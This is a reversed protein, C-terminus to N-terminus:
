LPAISNPYIVKITYFGNFLMALGGILWPIDEIKRRILVAGVGSISAFVSSRPMQKVRPWFYRFNVLAEDMNTM